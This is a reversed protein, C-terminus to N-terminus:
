HKWVPPLAFRGALVALVLNGAWLAYLPPVIGEKGLNVGMLTLPYYIIIIPVFCTIFASLFDRKAFLIGVPAGLVVFFFSGCALAIRMSRETDIGMSRREWERFAYFSGHVHEWDVRDIQGGGIWM